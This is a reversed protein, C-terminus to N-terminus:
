VLCLEHDATLDARVVHMDYVGKIYGEIQILVAKQEAGAASSLKSEQVHCGRLRM